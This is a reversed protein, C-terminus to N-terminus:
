RYDILNGPGIASQHRNVWGSFMLLLFQLPAANMAACGLRRSNLGSPSSTLARTGPSTRRARLDEIVDSASRGLPTRETNGFCRELTDHPVMLVRGSSAALWAAADHAEADGELWRRHGFNVTPRDLYLLFQEKYAVLGLQEGPQMRALMARTFAGGSREPNM